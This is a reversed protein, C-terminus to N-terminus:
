SLGGVVAIPDVHVPKHHGLVDHAKRVARRRGYIRWPEFALWDRRLTLEYRWRGVRRIEVQWEGDLETPGTWVM